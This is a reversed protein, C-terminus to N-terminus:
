LISGQANPASRFKRDTMKKEGQREEEGGGGGGAAANTWHKKKGEGGERERGEKKEAM